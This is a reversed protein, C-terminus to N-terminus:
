EGVSYGELQQAFENCGGGRSVLETRKILHIAKVGLLLFKFKM